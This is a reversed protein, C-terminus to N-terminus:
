RADYSCSREHLRLGPVCTGRGLRAFDVRRGNEDGVPILDVRLELRRRVIEHKHVARYTREDVAARRNAVVAAALRHNRVHSSAVIACEDHLLITVLEFLASVGTARRRFDRVAVVLVARRQVAAFREILAEVPELQGFSVAFQAADIAIPHACRGHAGFDVAGIGSLKLVAFNEVDSGEGLVNVLGVHVADALISM